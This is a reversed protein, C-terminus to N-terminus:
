TIAFCAMVQRINSYNPGIFYSATDSAQAFRYGGHFALGTNNEIATVYDGPVTKQFGVAIVGPRASAGIVLAPSGAPTTVSRSAAPADYYSSDFSPTGGIARFLMVAGRGDLTPSNGPSPASTEGGACVKYCHHPVTNASYLWSYGSPLVRTYGTSQSYVLIALDGASATAPFPITSSNVAISGVGLYSWRKGATPPMM